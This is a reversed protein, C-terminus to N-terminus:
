LLYSQCLSRAPQLLGAQAERPVGESRGLLRGAEGGLHAEQRRRPRRDPVPARSQILYTM